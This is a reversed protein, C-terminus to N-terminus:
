VRVNLWAFRYLVSSQLAQVAFQPMLEQVHATEFDTQHAAAPSDSAGPNCRLAAANSSPIDFVVPTQPPQFLTV